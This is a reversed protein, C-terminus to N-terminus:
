DKIWRKCILHILIIGLIAGCSDILMDAVACARNPVFIQHIEDSIAYVCSFAIAIVVAKDKKIERFFLYSLIGLVGFECFHAIKRIPKFVMNMFTVYDIKNSILGYIKYLIDLVVNTTVTSDNGVQASFFFILGMWLLLLVLKIAKKM